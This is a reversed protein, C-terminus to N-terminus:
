YRKCPQTALFAKVIIRIRCKDEKSLRNFKKQFSICEADEAEDLNDTFYEVSTDLSKSLKLLISLGPNESYGKELEWLYATSIGTKSSLERFNLGEKLRLERLKNSIKM